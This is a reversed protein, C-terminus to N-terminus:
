RWSGEVWYWGHKNHAWRGPHWESRGREFAVWQGPAWIYDRNEWQWHGPVWAYAPGPRTLVVEVREPPPEREVYVRGPPPMAPGCGLASLLILPILAHRTSM